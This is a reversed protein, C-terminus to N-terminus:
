NQYHAVIKEVVKAIKELSDIELHENISHPSYINPGISAAELGNQKAVFVGCELGAHVAQFKVKPNNEQM